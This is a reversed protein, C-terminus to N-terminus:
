HGRGPKEPLFRLNIGPCKMHLRYHIFHYQSLIQTLFKLIVRDTDKWRYEENM